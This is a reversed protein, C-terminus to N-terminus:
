QLPTIVKSQSFEAPDSQVGFPVPDFSDEFGAISDSGPAVPNDGSPGRQAVNGMPINQGTLLVELSPVNSGYETSKWLVSRRENFSPTTQSESIHLTEMNAPPKEDYSKVEDTKEVVGAGETSSQNSPKLDVCSKSAGTLQEGEVTIRLTATNTEEVAWRVVLSNARVVNESVGECGSVSKTETEKYTQRLADPERTTKNEAIECDNERDSMIAAAASDEFVDGMEFTVARTQFSSAKKPFERSFPDSSPSELSLPDPQVSFPDDSFSETAFPDVHNFPDPATDSRSSGLSWKHAKESGRTVADCSLSEAERHGSAQRETLNQNSRVPDSNIPNSRKAGGTSSTAVSLPSLNQRPKNSSPSVSKSAGSSPDRSASPVSRQRPRPRPIPSISTHILGDEMAVTSRAVFSLPKSLRSGLCIAFPDNASVTNIQTVDKPAASLGTFAFTESNKPTSEGIQKISEEDDYSTMTKARLFPRHAPSRGGVLILDDHPHPGTLNHAPRPRPMTLDYGVQIPRPRITTRDADSQSLRPRPLTFSNQTSLHTVPLNSYIPSEDLESVLRTTVVDKPKPRPPPVPPQLTFDVVTDLPLPPPPTNPSPFSSVDPSIEEEDSLSEPSALTPVASPSKPSPGSGDTGGHATSIGGTIGLGSPVRSSSSSRGTRSTEPSLSKKIEVGPTTLLSNGVEAAEINLMGSPKEYSQYEVQFELRNEDAAPFYDKGSETECGDEVVTSLSVPETASDFVAWGESSWTASSNASCPALGNTPHAATRRASAASAGTSVPPPLAVPFWGASQVSSYHSHLKTLPSVSAELEADSTSPLRHM